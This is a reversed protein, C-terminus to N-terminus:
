REIPVDFLIPEKRSWSERLRQTLEHPENIRAAEVGMSRALGVFDIEPKTLDMGVYNGLKMQPLPLLEGCDKLIKYQANNAIVFTVPIHHHAATWIGQIGYM